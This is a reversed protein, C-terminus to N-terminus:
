TTSGLVCWQEPASGLVCWQEPPPALFVVSSLPRLWSCVVSFGMQLLLLDVLHKVHQRNYIDPVLLICRYYKLDKLPIDLHKLLAHSWITHLDAMVASLSGGPGSHLNLGGRVVPWHVNYCDSPNVYLAEDGVLTQPQHSTNTWKLRSGSDTVSPRVQCNYARAQEASVATRRVGNSMKKSWIAQEVM